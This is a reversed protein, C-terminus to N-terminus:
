WKKIVNTCEVYYAVSGWCCMSILRCIDKIFELFSFSFSVFSLFFLWFLIVFLCIFLCVFLCVFLCACVCVCVCVFVCYVMYMMLKTRHHPQANSDWSLFVSLDDSIFSNWNRQGSDVYLYVVEFWCEHTWPGNRSHRRAPHKRAERNSCVVQTREQRVQLALQTAAYCCFFFEFFCSNYSVVGFVMFRIIAVATFTHITKNMHCVELPTYFRWYVPWFFGRPEAICCAWQWTLYSEFVFFILTDKVEM